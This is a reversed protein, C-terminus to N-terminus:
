SLFRAFFPMVLEDGAQVPEENGFIMNVVLILSLPVFFAGNSRSFSQRAADANPGFLAIELYDLGISKSIL